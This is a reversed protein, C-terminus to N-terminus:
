DDTGKNKKQKQDQQIWDRKKKVEGRYKKWGVYLLVFIICSSVILLLWVFSDMETKIKQREIADAM